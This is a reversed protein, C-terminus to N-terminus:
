APKHCVKGVAICSNGCAVGKKCVPKKGATAAPAATGKAASATAAAAAAAAPCKIFKGTKPDKCAAANATSAGLALVIALAVIRNM